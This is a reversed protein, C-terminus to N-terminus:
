LGYRAKVANFNTTLETNSLAKDYIRVFSISANAYESIEPRACIKVPTSATYLTGSATTTNAISGNLYVSWTNANRTLSLCMWATTTYSVPNLALADVLINWSSGTSSAYMKINNAYKFIVVPAYGVVGDTQGFLTAWSTNDNMKAALEITFDRAAFNFVSNAPVTIYQDVGNLTLYGNSSNFTPNNVISGHNDNGSLDAIAPNNNSHRIADVYFTLNSTVIGTSPVYVDRIWDSTTNYNVAM